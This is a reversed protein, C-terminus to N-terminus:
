GRKTNKAFALTLDEENKWDAKPYPALEICLIDSKRICTGKGWADSPEEYYYYDSKSTSLDSFRKVEIVTTRGDIDAICLYM